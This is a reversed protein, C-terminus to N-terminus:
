YRDTIADIYDSIEAKQPVSLVDKTYNIVPKTEKTDSFTSVFTLEGIFGGCDGSITITITGHNSVSGDDNLTVNGDISMTTNCPGASLTTATHYPYNVTAFM